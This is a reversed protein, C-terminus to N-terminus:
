SPIAGVNTSIIAMGSAGAELAGDGLRRSLQCPSTDCTYYLDEAAPQPKLNHLRLVAGASAIRLELSTRAWHRLARFASFCWGGKRELDSGVFLIKVPNAHPVRPM